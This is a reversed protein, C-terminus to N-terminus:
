RRRWRWRYEHELSDFQFDDFVDAVGDNDDDDIEDCKSDGDFNSPVSDVGLPDSACAM